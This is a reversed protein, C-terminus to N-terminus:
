GTVQESRLSLAELLEAEGIDEKGALDAITRSVRLFRTWSRISFVNESEIQRLLSRGGSSLRLWRDRDAWELSRNTGPQARRTLQQRAELVRELIQASSEAATSSLGDALFSVPERELVVRLDFRDLLPESLRRSYRQHDAARCRCKKRGGGGCPCPNMAAVLLFEGPFTMTGSARSLTISGEELPERLAELTAASLEPFEDLFLIGRHARSIEGPIPPSGGGILGAATISHHPSRFPCKTNLFTTSIAGESWEDGWEDSREDTCEEFSRPIASWPQAEDLSSEGSLETVQFVELAHERSLRPLLGQLRRALMSKGCGPPGVLLLPHEGAACIELARRGRLQGQVESMDPLSSLDREECEHDGGVSEARSIPDETQQFEISTEKLETSTEKLEHVVQELCIAAGIQIPFRVVEKALTVYRSPVYIRPVPGEKEPEVFHVKKMISHEAIARIISLGGRISRIRGDLALEGVFAQHRLRSRSIQGSEVLIGIAIALDLTSGDKARAAPALNIVIRHRDPFVFGSNELASRIRQRSERIGPGPLGTIVFAPLAPILDVEVEVIRGQFGALDGSFLRFAM